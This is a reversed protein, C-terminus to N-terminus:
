CSVPAYPLTAPLIDVKLPNQTGIYGVDQLTNNYGNPAVNVNKIATEVLDAYKEHPLQDTRASLYSGTSFSYDFAANTAIGQQYSKDKFSADLPIWRHGVNDVRSGRYHGYPVCAEM